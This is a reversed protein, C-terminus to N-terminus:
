KVICEKGMATGSDKEHLVKLGNRSYFRQAGYNDSGCIMMAGRCGKEALNMYFSEILLSGVGSGRHGPLIDIHFHAPYKDKYIGHDNMEVTAEDARRRSIAAIRPYYDRMFREAYTDYDAAGYIYGFPVDGDDVAVFCNEPECEIYYDCFMLLIFDRVDKDDDELEANVICINRVQEKDEPRYKRIIFSM